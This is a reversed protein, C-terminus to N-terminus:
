TKPLMSPPIPAGVRRAFADQEDAAVLACGLRRAIAHVARERSRDATAAPLALAEVRAVEARLGTAHAEIRGWCAVVGEVWDFEGFWTRTGPRHYAYIGCRCHPHPSRHPEAVWGHGFELRRNAPFCEAHMIRGDWRAPIYPSLLAEGVIRWARFAAVPEVLDPARSV